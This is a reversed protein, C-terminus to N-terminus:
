ARPVSKRAHACGALWARWAKDITPEVYSDGFFKKANIPMPRSTLYAFGGAIVHHARMVAGETAFARFAPALPMRSAFGKIRNNQSLGGVSAAKSQSTSGHKSAANANTCAYAAAPESM